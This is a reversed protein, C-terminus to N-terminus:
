VSDRKAGDTPPEILGTRIAIAVAQTINNANLKHVASQRNEKIWDRNYYLVQQMQVANKGAASLRLIDLELPTLTM